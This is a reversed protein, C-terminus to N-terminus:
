TLGCPQRSGDVLKMITDIVSADSVRAKVMAAAVKFRIEPAVDNASLVLVPMNDLGLVPLMDLLTQGSGDPLVIDLVILDFQIKQLLYVARKLTPAPLLEVRGRLAEAMVHRLDEDDEVHLVKPLDSEFAPVHMDFANDCDSKVASLLDAPAHDLGHAIPFEVWFVSGSGGESDFGIQGKMHEVIMKSIHLGLGTGGKARTVTGDAQSFKSFIRSHFEAPIGAGEDAVSIRAMGSRTALTMNVTSGAPSFKAANSIFNTLVQSLRPADVSCVIAEDLEGVKIQVGYKEALARNVEETARVIPAIAEEHCDFRMKGSAIKDIDLIDNILLILRECNNNAIQILRLVKGSVESAMAGSILGLSGRISTLPTRLEHSVVSVFESKVRDMEQRATIDHVQAVFYHPSSDAHRVLSMSLLVWVLGGGVQYFRQEVQFTKIEGSLAKQMLSILTGIDEHHTIAQVDNAVLLGPEYGLLDCLAGNVKLWRGRIDALGMGISAHEMASRFTEESTKLTDQQALRETIDEVVCVYGNLAGSLAYMPSVTLSAPFRGGDQRVLTWDSTFYGNQRAKRTFLDFGPQIEEGLDESLEIARALVEDADHWQMLSARGIVESANVGLSAEAASNFTQVLGHEDTSIILHPVSTFIAQNVQNIRNLSESRFRHMLAFRAIMAGLLAIIIGSMLVIPPLLGRQTRVYETTPRLSMQWAQNFVQVEKSAVLGTRDDVIPATSASQFYTKGKHSLSISFHRMFDANMALGFFESVDFHCALFGNNRANGEVPLYVYMGYALGGDEFPDTSFSKGAGIGSLLAARHQPHKSFEEWSHLAVYSASVTWRLSAYMDIWNIARLGQMSDVMGKADGRRQADTMGQWQQAIRQLVSTEDGLQAAMMMEVRAAESELLAKIQGVEKDRMAMALLVSLGSLCVFVGFPLLRYRSVGLAGGTKSRNLIAFLAWLAMGGTTLIATMLIFWPRDLNQESQFASTSEWLLVWSRGMIKVTKRTSFTPRFDAVRRVGDPDSDYIVSGAQEQTDYIRVRFWQGQAPTLKELLTRASLPSYVWGILARDRQAENELPAGARYMPSVLLLDVKDVSSRETLLSSTMTIAGSRRSLELALRIQNDSALNLGIWAKNPAQPEIFHSIYRAGPGAEESAAFGLGRLGPYRLPLDAALVYRHWADANVDKPSAASMFLAKGDKLAGAHQNLQRLLAVEHDQVMAQFRSAGQEQADTRTALWWVMTVISLGALLLVAMRVARYSLVRLSPFNIM